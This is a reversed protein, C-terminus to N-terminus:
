RLYGVVLFIADPANSDCPTRIATSPQTLRKASCRDKHDKGVADVSWIRLAMAREVRYISGDLLRGLFAAPIANVQEDNSAIELYIMM